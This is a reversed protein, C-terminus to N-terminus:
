QENQVEEYLRRARRRARTLYQRVSAPALGVRGAIEEHGMELVYRFYLIDKQVEPLDAIVWLVEELGAEQMIQGDISLSLDAITGALDEDAGYYIHSNQVGRSRLSDIAVSRSIYVLYAVRKRCDLERITSINTILRIFAESVLDELNNKDGTLRYIRKSVYSRHKEYLDLVLERDDQDTLVTLLFTIM